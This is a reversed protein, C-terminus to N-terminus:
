LTSVKVIGEHFADPDGAIPGSEQAKLLAAKVGAPSAYRHTTLYLAAAGSVVPTAFSTGVGSAYQGGIYTTAACSGPAAIDVDAGFNSYSAFTDDVDTPLCKLNGSLGGPAGDGDSIASVTIVEDYAAPYSQSADRSDNGAAAVVTVGLNVVRCIAQHIPDRDQKRPANGCNASDGGTGSLSLNAIRVTSAHQAVWDLGCLLDSDRINGKKDAVRVAWLRTDPAVGFIGIENDRAGIFGAVMTGHGEPDAWGNGRSCDVGGVVNLDPHDPDIGTDLVAVDVVKTNTAGDVEATRSSLTGVRAVAFSAFQDPQPPVGGAKSPGTTMTGDRTVSIVETLSQLTNLQSTTLTASFGNSYVHTPNVKVSAALAQPSTGDDAIVIYNGSKALSTAPLLLLLAFTCLAILARFSRAPM